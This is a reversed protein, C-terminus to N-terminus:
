DSFRDIKLGLKEMIQIFKESNVDSKLLFDSAGADECQSMIQSTGEGTMAIVPIDPATEKLEQVTNAGSSDLLDLAAFIVNFGYQDIVKKAETVSATILIDINEFENLIQTFSLADLPDDEILLLNISLHELEGNPV